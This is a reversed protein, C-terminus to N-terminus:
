IKLNKLDNLFDENNLFYTITQIYNEAIIKIDNRSIDNFNTYCANFKSDKDYIKNDLVEKKLIEYIKKRSFGSEYLKEHEECDRIEKWNEIYNTRLIDNRTIESELIYWINSHENQQYAKLKDQRWLQPIINYRWFYKQEFAKVKELTENNIDEFYIQLQLYEYKTWLKLLDNIKKFNETKEKDNELESWFNMVYVGFHINQPIWKIRIRIFWYWNHQAINKSIYILDTLKDDAKIIEIFNSYLRNLFENYWTPPIIIQHIVLFSFTILIINTWNNWLFILFNNWSIEIINKESCIFKKDNLKEIGFETTINTWNNNYVCKLNNIDWSIGWIALTWLIAM